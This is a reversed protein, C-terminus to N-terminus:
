DQFLYISFHAVNIFYYNIIAPDMSTLLFLNSSESIFRRPTQHWNERKKSFGLNEVMKLNESFKKFATKSQSSSSLSSVNWELGALVWDVYYACFTGITTYVTGGSSPCFIQEFCTCAILRLLSFFYHM